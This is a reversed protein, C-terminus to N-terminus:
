GGDGKPHCGEEEGEYEEGEIHWESGDPGCPVSSAAGRRLLRQPTRHQAPAVRDMIVLYGPQHPTRLIFVVRVISSSPANEKRKKTGFGHVLCHPFRGRGARLGIAEPVRLWCPCGLESVVRALVAHCVLPSRHYSRCAEADSVPLSITTRTEAREQPVRNTPAAAPM